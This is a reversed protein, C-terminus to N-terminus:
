NVQEYYINRDVAEHTSYQRELSEYDEGVFQYQQYVPNEDVELNEESKKKKSMKCVCCVIVTVLVFIFLASSSLIAVAQFDDSVNALPVVSGLTSNM